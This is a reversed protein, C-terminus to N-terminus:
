HGHGQDPQCISAKAAASAQCRMPIFSQPASINIIAAGPKTLHPYGARMVTFTGILDIDVIARFGNSSQANVAAVLNRAAGSVLM